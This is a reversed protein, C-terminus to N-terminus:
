VILRSYYTMISFLWSILWNICNNKKFCHNLNLYFTWTIEYILYIRVGILILPDQLPSTLNAHPMQKTAVCFFIIYGKRSPVTNSLWSCSIIHSSAVAPQWPLSTKLSLSIEHPVDFVIVIGDFWVKLIQNHISIMDHTHDLRM